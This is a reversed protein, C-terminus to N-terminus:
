LESQEDTEEDNTPVDPEDDPMQNRRLLRKDKGTQHMLTIGLGARLYFGRFDHTPDGGINTSWGTRLLEGTYGGRLTTVFGVRARRQSLKGMLIDVGAAANGLLGLRTADDDGLGDRGNVSIGTWNPGAGLLAYVKTRSRRLFNIGGNLVLDTQHISLDAQDGKRQVSYGEIEVEAVFNGHIARGAIGLTFQGDDFKTADAWSLGNNLDSRDLFHYGGFPSLSIANIDSPFASIPALLLFLLILPIYIRSVRIIEEL